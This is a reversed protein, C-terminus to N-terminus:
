IYLASTFLSISLDFSLDPCLSDTLDLLTGEPLTTVWAYYAEAGPSSLPMRATTELLSLLCLRPLPLSLAM